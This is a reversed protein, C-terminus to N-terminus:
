YRIANQRSREFSLVSNRSSFFSPFFYYYIFGAEGNCAKPAICLHQLYLHNVALLSCFQLTATLPGEAFNIDSQNVGDLISAEYIFRWTSVKPWLQPPVSDYIICLVHEVEKATVSTM